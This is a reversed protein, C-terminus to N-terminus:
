KGTDPFSYLEFKEKELQDLHEFPKNVLPAIIATFNEGKYANTVVVAMLIWVGCVFYMWNLKKSNIALDDGQELLVKLGMFYPTAEMSFRSAGSMWFVAHLFVGVGVYFAGIAVWVAMQFASIYGSFNIRAENLVGCSLFTFFDEERRIAVGWGQRYFDARPYSDDKNYTDCRGSDIDADHGCPFESFHTFVTANDILIRFLIDNITIGRIKTIEKLNRFSLERKLKSYPTTYFIKTDRFVFNVAPVVWKTSRAAFDLADFTTAIDPLTLPGRYPIYKRINVTCFKCGLKLTFNTQNPPHFELVILYSTHHHELVDNLAFNFEIQIKKSSIEESQVVLLHYWPHTLTDFYDIQKFKSHYTNM